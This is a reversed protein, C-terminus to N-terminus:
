RDNQLFPEAEDCSPYISFISTFGAITFIEQIHKNLAALALKGNTKQVNKALSVLVRLGVSSIYTLNSFDILLRNEGQNLLSMLREEVGPSTSADLRGNLGIIKIDGRKEERIEMRKGKSCTREMCSLGTKNIGASNYIGRKQARGQDRLVVTRNKHM